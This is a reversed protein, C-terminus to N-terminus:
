RIPYIRKLCSRGSCFVPTDRDLISVSIKGSVKRQRRKYQIVFCVALPHFQIEVSYRELDGDLVIETLFTQWECLPEVAGKSQFIHLKRSLSPFQCATFSIYPLMRRETASTRMSSPNAVEIPFCVARMAWSPFISSKSSDKSMLLM